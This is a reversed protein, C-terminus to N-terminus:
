SPNQHLRASKFKSVRKIPEESTRDHVAQTGEITETPFSTAAPLDPSKEVVLGTFAKNKSSNLSSFHLSPQNLSQSKNEVDSSTSLIQEEESGKDHSQKNLMISSNLKTIEHSNSYCTTDTKKLISKPSFLRYVDAPSQIVLEEAEHAHLLTISPTPSHTFTIIKRSAEKTVETEENSEEDEETYGDYSDDNDDDEISNKSDKMEDEWNVKRDDISSNESHGQLRSNESEEDDYSEESSLNDLEGRVTEQRELEDLRSWPSSTDKEQKNVEKKGQSNRKLEEHYRQVSKRHQEDWLKEKVDEYEEVIEKVDGLGQIEAQLESTFDFRPELLKQQAKLDDLSKDLEKIRRGAIDAAQKASRDVFWNDGLLVLIENTHVLHGPMFALKGFPVMVSHTVKDPLTKLRDQLARYDEKFQKMQEIKGSTESMAKRQEEQLRSLQRPDM